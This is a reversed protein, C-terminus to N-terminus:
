IIQGSYETTLRHILGTSQFIASVKKSLYVVCPTLTFQRKLDGWTIKKLTSPKIQGSRSLLGRSLDEPIRRFSGQKSHQGRLTFCGHAKTHSPSKGDKTCGHKMVALALLTRTSDPNPNPYLNPETTSASKFVENQSYKLLCPVSPYRASEESSERACLDLAQLFMVLFFNRWSPNLVPYASFM